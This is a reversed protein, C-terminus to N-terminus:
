EVGLKKAIKVLLDYNLEGYSAADVAHGLVTDKRGRKESLEKASRRPLWLTSEHLIRFVANRIGLPARPADDRGVDYTFTAEEILERMVRTVKDQLTRVDAAWEKVNRWVRVVHHNGNGSLENLVAEPTSL